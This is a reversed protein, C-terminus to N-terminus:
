GYFASPPALYKGKKKSPSTQRFVDKMPGTGTEFAAPNWQPKQPMQPMPKPPPPMYGQPAYAELAKQQPVPKQPQPQQMGPGTFAKMTQGLQPGYPSVPPYKPLTQGPAVLPPGQIDEARPPLPRYRGAGRGIMKQAWQQYAPVNSTM